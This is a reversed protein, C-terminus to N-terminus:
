LSNNNLLNESVEYMVIKENGKKREKKDAM